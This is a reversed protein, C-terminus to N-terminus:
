LPKYEFKELKAGGSLLYAPRLAFFGKYTNHHYGSVDTVGEPSQVWEGDASKTWLYAQNQENRIRVTLQPADGPARM